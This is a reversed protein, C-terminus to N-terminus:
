SYNLSVQHQTIQLTLILFLTIILQLYSRYTILLDLQWDSGTKTVLVRSLIIKHFEM